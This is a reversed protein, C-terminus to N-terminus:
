VKAESAGERVYLEAYRRTVMPLNDQIWQAMSEEQRLTEQLLPAADRFGGDEALIILSRYSAIEFNEFAYNAFSNKLIEDGMVSHGIAAMGGAMSTAMDKLMSAKTGHQDLIQNLREIQGHTEQIHARLREAMEPYNEIRAVQPEMISLAQQELAHANKVGTLFLEVLRDNTSPEYTTAM